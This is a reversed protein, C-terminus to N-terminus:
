CKLSFEAPEYSLWPSLWREAEEASVGKRKAYREIQDRGIRGVNFYRAQPHSLYLGSVSAAPFMAGSETLEIGIARADLLDFLKFKESHDPCAPYGFAPRIGRYKEAIL